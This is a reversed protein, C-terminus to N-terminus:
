IGLITRMISCVINKSYLVLVASAVAFQLAGNALTCHSCEDKDNVRQQQEGGGTAISINCNGDGLSAAEETRSFDHGIISPKAIPSRVSYEEPYATVLRVLSDSDGSARIVAYKVDASHVFANM